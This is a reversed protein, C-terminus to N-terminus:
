ADDNNKYKSKSIQLLAGLCTDVALITGQIQEAYPLGWITSITFYLTGVAPLVIIAIYKLVDYVKDSMKMKM